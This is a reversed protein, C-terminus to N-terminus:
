GERTALWRAGEPDFDMARPGNLPTGAIPAGDPTPGPKGTGAVTTIIGTELDIKRVVHNGIDCLFLAGGPGFQLSHPQKLRAQAAPGGDGSYGPQGTGAITTILGTKAEVRRI